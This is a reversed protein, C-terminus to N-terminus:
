LNYRLEFQKVKHLLFFIIGISASSNVDAKTVVPQLASAGTGEEAKGTASSGDQTSHPPSRTPTHNQQQPLLPPALSPASASLRSPLFALSGPSPDLFLFLLVLIASILLFLSLSLLFPRRARDSSPVAM